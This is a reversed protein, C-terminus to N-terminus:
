GNYEEESDPVVSVIHFDFRRLYDQKVLERVEEETANPQDVYLIYYREQSIRKVPFRIDEELKWVIKM